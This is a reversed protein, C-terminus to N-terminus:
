LEHAAIEPRGDPLELFLVRLAQEGSPHLERQRQRLQSQDVLVLEHHVGLHDAVSRRQERPEGLVDVQLEHAPPREGRPHHRHAVLRSAPCRTLSGATDSTTSSTLPKLKSAACKRGFTGSPGLNRRVCPWENRPSIATRPGISGFSPHTM